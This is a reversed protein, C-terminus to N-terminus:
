TKKERLLAIQPLTPLSVKRTWSKSGTYRPFPNGDTSPPPSAKDNGMTVASSQM